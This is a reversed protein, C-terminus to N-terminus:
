QMETPKIASAITAHTHAVIPDVEGLDQRWAEVCGFGREGIVMWPGPKSAPLWHLHCHLAQKQHKNCSKADSGTRGGPGGACVGRVNVRINVQM